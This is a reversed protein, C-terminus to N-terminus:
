KTGCCGPANPIVIMVMTCAPCQFSENILYCTAQRHLWYRSSSPNLVKHWARLWNVILLIGANKQPHCKFTKQHCHFIISLLCPSPQINGKNLGRLSKYGIQQARQQRKWKIINIDQVWHTRRPFTILFRLFFCGQPLFSSHFTSLLPPSSFCLPLELTQSSTNCKLSVKIGRM